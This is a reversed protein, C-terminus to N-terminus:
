WVVESSERSESTFKRQLMMGVPPYRSVPFIIRWASVQLACGSETLSSRASLRLAREHISVTLRGTLRTRYPGGVRLDAFTAAM